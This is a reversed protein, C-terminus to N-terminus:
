EDKAFITIEKNEQSIQIGISQEEGNFERSYAIFEGTSFPNKEFLNEELESLYILLEENTLPYTYYATDSGVSWTKPKAGTVYGYNPCWPCENYYPNTNVYNVLAQATNSSESKVLSSSDSNIENLWDLTVLFLILLVLIIIAELIMIIIPIRSLKMKEGCKPCFKGM